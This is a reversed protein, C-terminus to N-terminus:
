KVTRRSRPCALGHLAHRTKPTCRVHSLRRLISTFSANRLGRQRECSPEFQLSAIAPIIVIRPWHLEILFCDRRSVRLLRWTEAHIVTSPAKERRSHSKTSIESLPALTKSSPIVSTGDLKRIDRAGVDSWSVAHSTTQCRPRMNPILNAQHHTGFKALLRRQQSKPPSCRCCPSRPLASSHAEGVGRKLKRMSRM